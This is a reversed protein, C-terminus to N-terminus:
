TLFNGWFGQWVITKFRYLLYLTVIATVTSYSYIKGIRVSLPPRAQLLPLVGVLFLLSSVMGAM